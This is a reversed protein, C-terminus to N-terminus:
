KGCIQWLRTNVYLVTTNGDDDNLIEGNVTTHVIMMKHSDIFYVSVYIRTNFYYICEPFDDGRISVRKTIVDGVTNSNINIVAVKYKHPLIVYAQTSDPAIAITGLIDGVSIAAIVQNINLDIVSVVQRWQHTVYLKKGDPTIAMRSPHSDLPITATVKHSDTVIVSVVGNRRFCEENIVYVKKGDPAVVIGHPTSNVRTEITAIVTHSDTAIVVTVSRTSRVSRSDYSDIAAYARNGDPTFAIGVIARARENMKINAIVRNIDADIVFIITENREHEKDDLSVYAQNGNPTIAMARATTARASFEPNIRYITDIVVHGDIDIVYLDYHYAVYAFNGGAQTAAELFRWLVDLLVYTKDSCFTPHKGAKKEQQIRSWEKRIQSWTTTKRWEEQLILFTRRQHLREAKARYWAARTRLQSRETKTTAKEALKEMEEARHEVKEARNQLAQALEWVAQTQDEVKSSPSSPKWELQKFM